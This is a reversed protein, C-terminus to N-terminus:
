LVAYAYSVGYRTHQILTSNMDDRARGLELQLSIAHVALAQLESKKKLARREGRGSEWVIGAYSEIRGLIKCVAKADDKSRENM